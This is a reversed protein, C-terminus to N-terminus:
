MEEKIYDNKRLENGSLIIQYTERDSLTLSKMGYPSSVTNICNEERCYFLRITTCVRLIICPHM